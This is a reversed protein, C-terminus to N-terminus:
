RPPDYMPVNSTHSHCRLTHPVRGRARGGATARASTATGASTRRRVLGPERTGAPAHAGHAKRFLTRLVRDLFVRVLRSGFFAFVSIYLYHAILFARCFFVFVRFYHPSHHTGYFIFRCVDLGRCAVFSFDVCLYVAHLSLRM